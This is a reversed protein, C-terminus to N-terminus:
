TPSFCRLASAGGASAAAAVAAPRAGRLLRAALGSVWGTALVFRGGQVEFLEPEVNDGDADKALLLVLEADALREYFRLRVADDRDLVGVALQLDHM